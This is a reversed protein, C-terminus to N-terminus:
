HLVEFVQYEGAQIRLEYHPSGHLDLEGLALEFPGQFIYDVQYTELFQIQETQDMDGKYFRDVQSRVSANNATEPGHGLVVIVPAWAPLANGTEFASLVVVDDVTNNGSWEFIEVEDSHRFIPFSPDTSIKIGSFFILITTPLSLGLLIARWPVNNWRGLAKLHNLGISTLIILAVWIGDPLRRQLNHPAYAFLPFALVWTVLFMKTWRKVRFVYLIGLCVPVLFLGYAILVHLPHPSYIRNQETWAVLYPDTTFKIAFYILLPLPIIGVKLAAMIWKKVSVWRSELMALFLIGLQHVAIVAFATVMALPHVLGVLLIWVGAMWTRKTSISATLYYALSTLLLGRALILHPSGFYALFGFWEPSIWDMPLSGLWTGSGMLVLLWGLGGGLSSLITGWRRWDIDKTFLSIFRYTAFITFPTVIIRFLHYLVVLQEHLAQGSALKGLLIYPLFAVVGQQEMTSYPSRFMWAGSSGSLMKAIYSNGDEVAFLFGTFRWNENEAFYGLLYPITLILALIIGYSIVWKSERKNM